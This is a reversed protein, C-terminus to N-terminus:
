FISNFYTVIPNIIKENLFLGIKIRKESLYTSIPNIINTNLFTIPPNIIKENLFSETQNAKENLNAFSQGIITTNLYTVLPDFIKENSYELLPCLFKSILIIILFVVFFFFPVSFIDSKSTFFQRIKKYSFIAPLLFIMETTVLVTFTNKSFYKYFVMWLLGTLILQIFVTTRFSRLNFWFDKINDLFHNTEKYIENALSDIQYKKNTGTKDSFKFLLLCFFQVFCVYVFTSLFDINIDRKRIMFGLTRFFFLAIFSIIYNKFSLLIYFLTIFSTLYKKFSSSTYQNPRSEDETSLSRESKIEDSPEDDLKKIIKQFLPYGILILTSIIINSTLFLNFSIM